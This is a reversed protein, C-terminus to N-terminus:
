LTVAGLLANLRPLKLNDGALRCFLVFRCVIVTINTSVNCVKSLCFIPLWGQAHQNFAHGFNLSQVGSVSQVEGIRIEELCGRSRTAQGIALKM